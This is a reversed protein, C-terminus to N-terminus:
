RAGIGPMSSSVGSSRALRSIKRAWGSMTRAAHTRPRRRSPGPALTHVVCDAPPKGLMAHRGRLIHASQRGGGGSVEEHHIIEDQAPVRCPGEEVDLGIREGALHRREGRKGVCRDWSWPEDRPAVIRCREQHGPQRTLMGEAGSLRTDHEIQEVQDMRDFGAAERAPGVAPVVFTALEGRWSPPAVTSHPIPGDAPGGITLRIELRCEDMSIEMRAVDQPGIRRDAADDIPPVRAKTRGREIQRMVPDVEGRENAGLDASPANGPSGAQSM